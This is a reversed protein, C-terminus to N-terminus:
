PQAFHHCEKQISYLYVNSEFYVDYRSAELHDIQEQVKILEKEAKKAEGLRYDEWYKWDKMKRNFTAKAKHFPIPVKIKTAWRHGKGIKKKRNCEYTLEYLKLEPLPSPTTYITNLLEKRKAILELYFKYLDPKNIMMILSKGIRDRIKESEKRSLKSKSLKEQIRRSREKSPHSKVKKGKVVCLRETIPHIYYSEHKQYDLKEYCKVFEEVSDFIDKRQFRGILMFRGDSTETLRYIYASIVEKKNMVTNFNNFVKTLYSYVEDWKKGVLSPIVRKIAKWVDNGRYSRWYERRINYFKTPSEKFKMGLKTPLNDLKEINM